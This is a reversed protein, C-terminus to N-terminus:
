AISRCLCISLSAPASRAVSPRASFLEEVSLVMKAGRFYTGATGFKASAHKYDEADPAFLM